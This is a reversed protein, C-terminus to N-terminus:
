GANSDAQTRRLRVREISGWVIRWGVLILTLFGLAVLPFAGSNTSGTISRFVLGTAWTVLALVVAAPWVQFAVPAGTRTPGWQRTVAWGVLLGVLFPWATQALGILSNTENHSSRGSAAFIIVTAIDLLAWIWTRKM